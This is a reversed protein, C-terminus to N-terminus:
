SGGQPTANAGTASSSPGPTTGNGAMMSHLENSDMEAEDDQSPLSLKVAMAQEPRIKRWTANDDIKIDLVLDMVEDDFKVNRKLGPHRKKWKYSVSELARLSARLNDPIELRMGANSGALNFAASRVADRTTADPFRM